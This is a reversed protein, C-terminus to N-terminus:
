ENASAFEVIYHISMASEDYFVIEDRCLGTMASKAHVCDKNIKNLKEQSWDYDAGTPYYPNGYAVDFVGMYATASSGNAWRSRMYSTYGFSKDASPAFYIGYGFMKGSIQANPNLMLSNKIISIWNENRSGHWLKMTKTIHRAEVYDKYRQEQDLYRVRYVHKLLPLLNQSDKLMGKVEEIEFNTADEVEIGKFIENSSMKSDSNKRAYKDITAEMASILGDERTVIEEFDEQSSAMFSKVTMHHYPDIRRPSLAMLKKIKRNFSEITKCDNLSKWIDRSMQVQKETFPCRGMLATEDINFFQNVVENSLSSLKRYLNSAPSDSVQEKETETMGCQVATDKDDVMIDSLDEYGDAIHKYYRLWYLWSQFPHSLTESQIDTKKAGTRGFSCSCSVTIPGMNNPILKYFSYGNKEDDVISLYKKQYTSPKLNINNSIGRVGNEITFEAKMYGTSVIVHNPASITGNLLEGIPQWFHSEDDAAISLKKQGNNWTVETNIM